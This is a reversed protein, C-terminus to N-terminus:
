ECLPIGVYEQVAYRFLDHGDALSNHPHSVGVKVVANTRVMSVIRREM